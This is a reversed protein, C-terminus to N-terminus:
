ERYLKVVIYLILIITIFFSLFPLLGLLGIFIFLIIVAKNVKKEEYRCDNVYQRILYGALFSSALLLIWHYKILFEIFPHINM